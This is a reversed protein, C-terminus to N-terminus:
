HSKQRRVPIQTSFHARVRLMELRNALLRATRINKILEAYNLYYKRLNCSIIYCGFAFEKPNPSIVGLISLQVSFWHISKYSILQTVSSTNQIFRRVKLVKQLVFM